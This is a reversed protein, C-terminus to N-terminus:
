LDIKGKTKDGSNDEKLSKNEVLNKLLEIFKNHERDWYYISAPVIKIAILEVDNIGDFWEDDKKSYLEELISKDTYIYAKGYISIFQMKEPHSYLLQVRIDALINTYHDSNLSSLFWINGNEEIKKTNMPNAGIPVTKLDSLLIAVKINDVMEKMKELAEKHSLNETKM